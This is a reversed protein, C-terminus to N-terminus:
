FKVKLIGPDRSSEAIGQLEALSYNGREEIAKRLEGLCQFALNDPYDM